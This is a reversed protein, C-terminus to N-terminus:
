HRGSGSYNRILRILDRWRARRLYLRHSIRHGNAESYDRPTGMM